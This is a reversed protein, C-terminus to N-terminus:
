LRFSPKLGPWTIVTRTGPSSLGSASAFVFGIGSASRLRLSDCVELSGTTTISASVLLRVGIQTSISEFADVGWLVASKIWPAFCNSAPWM